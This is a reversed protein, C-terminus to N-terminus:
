IGGGASVLVLVFLFFVLVLFGGVLLFLVISRRGCATGGLIVAGGAVALAGYLVFAGKGPATYLVVILFLLVLGFLLGDALRARFLLGAGAAVTLGLQVLLVGTELGLAGGTLLLPRGGRLFLFLGGNHIRSIGKGFPIGGVGRLAPRVDAGGGRDLTHRGCRHFARGGRRLRRLGGLAVVVHVERKLVDERFKLLCM